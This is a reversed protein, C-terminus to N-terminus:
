TLTVNQSVGNDILLKESENLFKQESEDGVSLVEGNISIKPQDLVLKNLNDTIQATVLQLQEKNVKTDIGHEELQKTFQLIADASELQRPIASIKGEITYNRYIFKVVATLFWIIASIVATHGIVYIWLSGTEVKVLRLPYEAASVNFSLCLRSYLEELNNLKIQLDQYKNTSYFYISLKQENESPEVKSKLSYIIQKYREITTIRVFLYNRASFVLSILSSASYNKIYTEFDKQLLQLSEVLISSKKEEDNKILELNEIRTILSSIDLFIKGINNNKVRRTFTQFDEKLFGVVQSLEKSYMLTMVEDIHRFLTLNFDTVEFLFKNFDNDDSLLVVFEELEKILEITTM